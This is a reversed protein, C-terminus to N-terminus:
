QDSHAVYLDYSTHLLCIPVRIELPLLCFLIDLLYFFLRCVVSTTGVAGTESDEFRILCCQGCGDCLSEWETQNLEGLNKTEWFPKRNTM